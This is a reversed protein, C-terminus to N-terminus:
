LVRTKIESCLKLINLADRGSCTLDADACLYDYINTLANEFAKLYTGESIVEPSLGKYGAFYQSDVVRQVSWRLGGDLLKIRANSFVFDLEILQFDHSNSCSLSIPIEDITALNLPFSPDEPTFDFVPIGVYEVSLSGLLYFLLDLIHSGNNLLGKNYV